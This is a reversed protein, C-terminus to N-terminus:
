YNNRAFAMGIVENLASKLDQNDSAILENECIIVEKGRHLMEEMVMIAAAKFETLVTDFNNNLTKIDASLLKKNALNNSYNVVHCEYTEELYKKQSEIAYPPATTFFIVKKGKLGSPESLLPRPKFVTEIILHTSVLSNLFNRLKEKDGTDCKTIIIMDGKIISYREIKGFKDPDQDAGIIVIEGNIRVPPRAIGSGQYIILEPALKEAMETGEWVNSFAAVGTRYAEGVRFCGIVPFGTSLATQWNDSCIHGEKKSLELIHEPTLRYGEPSILVPKVPGGRGMTIFVPKYKDMLKAMTNIVSTKGVRKGTGLFGLTTIDTRHLIFDRLLPMNREGTFTFDLGEYTAGSSTIVPAFENRISTLVTPAGTLDYVKEPKFEALGKKIREISNLTSDYIVPVSLKKLEEPEGIKEISGLIVAGTVNGIEEMAYKIASNNTHLYTSGELLLMTREKNM